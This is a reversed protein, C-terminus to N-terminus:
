LKTENWRVQVTVRRPCDAASSWCGDAAGLQDIRTRSQYNINGVITSCGWATWVGTPRLPDSAGAYWTDARVMSRRYELHRRAMEYAALRRRSRSVLYRASTMVSFFGAALLGLVVMSVMIEVLTFGRRRTGNRKPLKIFM